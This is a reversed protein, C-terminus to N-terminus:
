HFSFFRQYKQARRKTDFVKLTQISYMQIALFKQFDGGLFSILVQLYYDEM